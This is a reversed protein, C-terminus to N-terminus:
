ESLTSFNPNSSIKTYLREGYYDRRANKDLLGEMNNPLNQGMQGQMQGMGMQGQMGMQGGMPMNMGPMGRQMMNPQVFQTQPPFKRLMHPGFVNNNFPRMNGGGMNPNMNRMNMPAGIGFNEQGPKLGGKFMKNTQNLMKLKLYESREQKSQHYDVFLKTSSNGLSTGNLAQKAERAQAAELFCVFGFVKVSRKIGLYSTFLEKRVTKASRIEGYKEFIKRLTADDMEDPLNKVYLNCFRYKEKIEKKIKEYLQKLKKVRDKRKLAQCADMRDDKNKVIYNDDHEKLYKTFEEIVETLRTQDKELNQYNEINEIIYAAGRHLHDVNVANKRLLEVYRDIEKNFEKDNVRYYPVENVVRKASDFNKFCIFAFQHQLISNKKDEPLKDLASADPERILISGLEGFKSFFASIHEKDWNKPINKVYINNFQPAKKPKSKIFQGVYIKKGKYEVENAEKIANSAGEPQDYLVFGYGIVEGDEDEVLRASIINGFKSFYDHFEKHTTTKALKKVFVNYEPHNRYNSPERNYWSIRITKKGLKSYNLKIIAEEAKSHSKFGVFAYGFSDRSQHDKAIKIYSIPFENFLQYLMNENVTKDLGSIFLISQRTYSM